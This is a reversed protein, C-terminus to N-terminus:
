RKVEEIYEADLTDTKEPLDEARTYDYEACRYGVKYSLFAVCVLVFFLLVIFVLDM